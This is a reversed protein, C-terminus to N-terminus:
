KKPQLVLWRMSQPRGESMMLYKEDDSFKELISFNFPNKSIDHLIEIKYYKKINQFFNKIKKKNSMNFPHEEIIFTSKSFKKCFHNSFLDYENGEIDVLFFLKKQEFDKLIGLLSLFNANGYINIKKSINNVKANKKLIERSKKSTEFAFGKKFFKKKLLSIIHYGAAAGLDIFCDFKKKKTLDLIKNQIQLEYSGLYKPSFDVNSWGYSNIIKTGAYPGYLIKNNTVKSIQKGLINKKKDLFNSLGTNKFNKNIFYLYIGDLGNIKYISNYKKFKKRLRIFIIIVIVIGLFYEFYM